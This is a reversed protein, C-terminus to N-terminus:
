RYWRSIICTYYQKKLYYDVLEEESLNSSYTKYRSVYEENKTISATVELNYCFNISLLFLIVLIIKKMKNRRIFYNM